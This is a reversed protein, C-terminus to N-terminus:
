GRGHTMNPPRWEHTFLYDLARRYGALEQESRNRLSVKGDIVQAARAVDAVVVGELASSATISQVRARASLDTLLAPLQARYLHQDGL